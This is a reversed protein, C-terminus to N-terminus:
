TPKGKQKRAKLHKAVTRSKKKGITLLDFKKFFERREPRRIIGTAVATIEGGNLDPEIFMEFDHQWQRMEAMVRILERENKVGLVILHTCHPDLPYITRLQQAVAVAHATQVVIQEPSPLDKRVFVYQYPTNPESM